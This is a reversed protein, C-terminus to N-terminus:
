RVRTYTPFFCEPVRHIATDVKVGSYSKRPFDMAASFELLLNNCQARLVPYVLYLCSNRHYHSAHFKPFQHIFVSLNASHGLATWHPDNPYFQLNYHLSRQFLVNNIHERHTHCGTTKSAVFFRPEQKPHRTLLSYMSCKRKVNRNTIRFNKNM